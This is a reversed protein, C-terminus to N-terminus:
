LYEFSFRYIEIISRRIVANERRVCSSVLSAINSSQKATYNKTANISNIKLRMAFIFILNYNM